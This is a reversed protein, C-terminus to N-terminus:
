FVLLRPETMEEIVYRPGERGLGSDKVGGYPMHDIRYGPVGNMIVAGVELESHAKKMRNLDHSFVGAQLGFSSDNALKIAQEFDVVPEIVVIPGFAEERCVKQDRPVNTLVTAAYLNKDSDIIEGGCLIKAGAATAEEVWSQIRNLHVRDILPGITTMQDSPDGVKLKAVNELLKKQFDEFVSEVVFVRQTSICIQGSYLFAGTAVQAAAKNIDATEDVIVAANGGLELIVKKKGAINKLMWGVTPSGTFSLMKFRDDRVMKEALQNDCLVVQFLGQPVQAERCLEEFKLISLPAFPSPKVVISCGCALAPAIKHIALNLPFNFPSIAIIPGIPFRQTMASLGMGHNFDMPVVEGGVRRSEELAWVLTALVRDAEANAYGIPKGAEASILQAFEKKRSQYLQIIKELRNYREGASRKRELTFASESLVMVNEVEAESAMPLSKLLKQSYKDYVKLENKM